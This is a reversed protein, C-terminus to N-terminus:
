KSSLRVPDSDSLPAPSEEMSPRRDAPWPDVTPSHEAMVRLDVVKPPSKPPAASALKAKARRAAGLLKGALKAQTQMSISVSPEHDGPFRPPAGVDANARAWGLSALVVLRDGPGIPVTDLPGMLVSCSVPGERDPDEDNPARVTGLPVAGREIALAAVEAYPKGVHEPRLLIDLLCAKQDTAFPQILSDVVELAGPTSYAIAYSGLVENRPLVEGAVYRLNARVGVDPADEVKVRRPLQDLNKSSFFDYVLPLDKSRGWRGLQSEVIAALLDHPLDIMMEDTNDAALVGLAVFSEARPLGADELFSVSQLNGRVFFLDSTQVARGDGDFMNSPAEVDGIALIPTKTRSRLASCLSSLQAWLFDGQLAVVIHGGAEVVELPTLYSHEAEIVHGGISSTAKFQKAQKELSALGSSQQQPSSPRELERRGEIAARQKRGENKDAEMLSSLNGIVPLLSSAQRTVERSEPSTDQQFVANAQKAPTHQEVRHIRKAATRRRCERLAEVWVEPGDACRPDAIELYDDDGDDIGFAVCDKSLKMRSPNLVIQGTEQSQVALLLVGVKACELAAERFTKGAFSPDLM